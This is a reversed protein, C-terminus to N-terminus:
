SCRRILGTLMACVRAARELAARAEREGVLGRQWAREVHAAVEGCEGRAETFRQRKQGPSYRNAGEAVLAVTAEVSRRLQDALGAYGRPFREVLKQVRDALEVSVRYADLRHHAFSYPTMDM